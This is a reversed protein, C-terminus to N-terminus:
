IRGLMVAPSLSAACMSAWWTSVSCGARLLYLLRCLYPWLWPAASRRGGSRGANVVLCGVVPLGSRCVYWWTSVSCGARLPYPLRYLYPGLWPCRLLLLVSRVACCGWPPSPTLPYPMSLPYPPSIKDTESRCVEGRGLKVRVANKEFFGFDGLCIGRYTTYKPCYCVISARSLSETRSSGNVAFWSAWMHSSAPTLIDSSTRPMSARTTSMM